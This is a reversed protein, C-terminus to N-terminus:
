QDTDDCSDSPSHIRKRELLQNIYHKIYIRQKVLKRLWTQYKLIPINGDHDKM